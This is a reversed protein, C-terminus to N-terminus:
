AKAECYIIVTVVHYYSLDSNFAEVIASTHPGKLEFGRIYNGIVAQGDLLFWDGIPSGPQPAFPTGANKLRVGALRSAEGHSYIEYRMLLPDTVAIESIKTASIATNAPIVIQAGYQPM